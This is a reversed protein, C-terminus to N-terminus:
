VPEPEGGIQGGCHPCRPPGQEHLNYPAMILKGTKKSFCHVMGDDYRKRIVVDDMQAANFIIKGEGDQLIANDFEREEVLRPVTVPKGDAEM